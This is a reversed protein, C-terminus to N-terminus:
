SGVLEPHQDTPAMHSLQEKRQIRFTLALMGLVAIGMLATLRFPFAAPATGATADIRAKDEGATRALESRDPLDSSIPAPETEAALETGLPVIGGAEPNGGDPIAIVSSDAGTEPNLSAIAYASMPALALVLATAVLLVKIAKM